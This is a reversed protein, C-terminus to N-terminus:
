LRVGKKKLDAVSLSHQELLRMVKNRPGFNSVFLLLILILFFIKSVMAGNVYFTYALPFFAVGTYLMREYATKLHLKLESFHEEDMEGFDALKLNKLLKRREYFMHALALGILFYLLAPFQTNM